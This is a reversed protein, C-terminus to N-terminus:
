NQLAAAVAELAKRPSLRKAPRLLLPEEGLSDTDMPQGYIDSVSMGHIRPLRRSREQITWAIVLTQRSARHRWSYLYVEGDLVVPGTVKARHLWYCTMLFASTKPHPGRGGLEWGNIEQNGSEHQASAFFVHPMLIVNQSLYMVANKIAYTMGRHWDIGSSNEASGSPNSAGLASRGHLGIEDILIPKNFVARHKQAREHATVAHEYPQGRWVGAVDPPQAATSYDHYACYDLLAAAGADAIRKAEWWRPGDLVPGALKVNRPFAARVVQLMQVYLAAMEDFDAVPLNDPWPENWVAIVDVKDAYRGAVARAFEAFLALWQQRTVLWQGTQPNRVWNPTGGLIMEIKRKGHHVAFTEDPVSWDWTGPSPEIVAWNFMGRVWGLRLREARMLVCPTRSSDGSWGIMDLRPWDDPLVAFQTRDGDTEVFYHGCPLQLTTPPGDYLVAGSLNLVRVPSGNTTQIGIRDSASFLGWREAPLLQIKATAPDFPFSFVPGAGASDARATPGPLLILVCSLWLSHLAATNSCFDSRNRM